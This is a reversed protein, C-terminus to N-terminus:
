QENETRREIEVQRNERTEILFGILMKKVVSRRELGRNGIMMKFILPSSCLREADTAKQLDAKGSGLTYRMNIFSFAASPGWHTM